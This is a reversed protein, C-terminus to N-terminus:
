NGRTMQPYILIRDHALLILDNAGDGTIDAITVTSPQFERVDGGSFIKSEFVAFGTAYLLRRAETFTFIECMQEGADLSILDLFGDGNIDGTALEHQLRHEKDTRWSAFERLASRKGSLSIVAFGDNGVALINDKDDGSFAGAYITHFDFGHVAISRIESWANENQSNEDKGLILLRDNEQDAAVIRDELIALSVLKASSDVANIQKVVQWGPSIGAAPNPEYRVARVYNRDALLLEDHGDGDIDFIATNDATAAKILGYQGMDKSETLEFGDDGAYLMIM